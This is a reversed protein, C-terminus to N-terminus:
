FWDEEAVQIALGGAGVLSRVLSTLIVDQNKFEKSERRSISCQGDSTLTSQGSELSHRKKEKHENLLSGHSTQLHKLLNGKTTLTYKYTRSCVKCKAQCDKSSGSWTPLDFFDSYTVSVSM